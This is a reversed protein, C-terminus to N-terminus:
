KAQVTCVGRKFPWSSASHSVFSNKLHFTKRALKFVYLIYLHVNILIPLSPFSRYRLLCCHPPTSATRIAARFRSRASHRRPRLGVAGARHQQETAIGTPVADRYILRHEPDLPRHGKLCYMGRFGVFNPASVCAVTSAFDTQVMFSGCSGLVLTRELDSITRVVDDFPQRTWVHTGASRDCGIVPVCGPRQSFLRLLLVVRASLSWECFCATGEAM